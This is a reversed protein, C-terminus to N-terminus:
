LKSSYTVHNCKFSKWLDLSKFVCVFVSHWLHRKFFSLKPLFASITLFEKAKEFVNLEKKKKSFEWWDQFMLFVCFNCSFNFHQRKCRKANVVFFVLSSLKTLIFFYYNIFLVFVFFVMLLCVILFLILCFILCM